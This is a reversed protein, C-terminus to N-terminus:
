RTLWDGPLATVKPLIQNVSRKMLTMMDSENITKRKAHGAYASLDEGLQEFFWDSAQTIAVLMDKSLRLKGHGLSRSTLKIIKKIMASPLSPYSIGYRSAKLERSKREKTAGRPQGDEVPVQMTEQAAEEDNHEMVIDDGVDEDDDASETSDLAEDEEDDEDQRITRDQVALGDGDADRGEDQMSDELVSDEQASVESERLESTDFVPIDLAFSDNNLSRRPLRAQNGVAGDLEGQEDSDDLSEQLSEDMSLSGINQLPVNITFDPSEVGPLDGLPDNLGMSPRPMDMPMARRPAEISIRTDNGEDMPLSLRPPAQFSDDEDVLPLSLRPKPMDDNLEDSDSADDRGHM